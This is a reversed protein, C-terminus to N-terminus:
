VYPAHVLHKWVLLLFDLCPIDSLTLLWLMRIPIKRERDRTHLGLRKRLSNLVPIEKECRDVQDLQIEEIMQKLWVSFRLCGYQVMSLIDLM